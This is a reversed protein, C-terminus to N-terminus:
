TVGEIHICHGKSDFSLRKYTLEVQYGDRVRMGDVVLFSNENVSPITTTVESSIPGPLTMATSNDSRGVLPLAALGAFAGFFSRRKM